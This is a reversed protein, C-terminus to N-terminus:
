TNATRNKLFLLALTQQIFIPRTRIDFMNLVYASLAQSILTAIAAGMGGFLPILILNLLINCVAGTTTRKLSLKMYGEAINWPSQAVGIFVFISSWIHIALIPGAGIFAKGYLVAVISNSLISIPIVISYSLKAIFRFLEQLKDYYLQSSTERFKIISPFVSSVIILPIFYCIESLRVAASYVGVEQSSAMESLMIQDIRMYVMVSIGSLVLPWSEKVLTSARTMSGKWFVPYGEHRQYIYVLLASGLITEALGAVAFSALSASSMILLIKVISLILFASNRAIVIYKSKVQSQFWLGIVDFSQFVSGSAIIAVLALTIRDSPHLLLLAGLSLVLCACGGVIKLYFASGLIEERKEPTRLIDRMVIGDLGMLAISSFISVFAQAYSLLGFQHPGLYRTVWVGVILGVGLRIIKDVLLWTTNDVIQRLVLRKGLYNRLFPPTFIM